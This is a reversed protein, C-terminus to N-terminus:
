SRKLTSESLCRYGVKVEEVLQNDNAPQVATDAMRVTELALLLALEQLRQEKFRGFLQALDREEDALQQALSAPLAAAVGVGGGVVASGAGDGDGGSSAM